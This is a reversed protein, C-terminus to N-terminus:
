KMLDAFEDVDLWQAMQYVKVAGGSYAGNEDHRASGITIVM